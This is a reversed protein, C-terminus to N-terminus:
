SPDHKSSDQPASEARLGQLVIASSIGFCAVALLALLPALSAHIHTLDSALAALAFLIGVLNLSVPAHVPSRQEGRRLRLQLILALLGVAALVVIALPSSLGGRSTFIVVLALVGCLLGSFIVTWRRSHKGNELHSSNYRAAPIPSLFGGGTFPQHPVAPPGGGV